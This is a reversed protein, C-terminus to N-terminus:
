QLEKVNNSVNNMGPTDENKPLNRRDDEVKRNTKNAKIRRYVMFGIIVCLALFGIGGAIGAVMYGNQQLVVYLNPLLFCPALTPPIESLTLAKVNENSVCAFPGRITTM